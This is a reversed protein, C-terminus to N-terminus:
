RADESVTFFARFTKEFVVHVPDVEALVEIENKGIALTDCGARPSDGEALTYDRPYRKTVAGGGVVEREEDTPNAVCIDGDPARVSWDIITTSSAVRAMEFTVDTSEGVSMIDLLSSLAGIFLGECNIKPDPDTECIDFGAGGNNEDNDVSDDESNLYDNGNGRWLM